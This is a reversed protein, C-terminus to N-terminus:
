TSVIKLKELLPFVITEVNSRIDEKTMRKEIEIQAIVERLAINKEELASQKKQLKLESKKLANETQKREEIELKLQQNASMLEATREEVKKELIGHAEKLAEEAKKRETIDKITHVFAKIESNEDVIPSSTAIYCRGRDMIEGIGGKKTKLTKECPCGEIPSKLGHIVEYCKRGLLEEPKRGINEFGAKNLKLIEFDASILAIIDLASDFTEEWGLCHEEQRGFLNELKDSATQPNENKSNYETELKEM